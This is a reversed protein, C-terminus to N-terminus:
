RLQNICTEETYRFIFQSQQFVLPRSTKLNALCSKLLLYIISHSRISHEYFSIPYIYVEKVILKQHIMRSCSIDMIKMSTTGLNGSINKLTPFHLMYRYISNFLAGGGGTFILGDFLQYLHKISQFLQLIISLSPAGLCPRFLQHDQRDYQTFIVLNRPQVHASHLAKM